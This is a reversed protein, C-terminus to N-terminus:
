ILPTVPEGAADVCLVGHMQGTLAIGDVPTGDGALESLVELALARLRHPHQEARTPLVPKTAADNPRQAQRDALVGTVHTTGLDLGIVGSASIVGSTSIVGSASIVGSPSIEGSVSTVGRM